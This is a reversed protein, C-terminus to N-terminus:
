ALKALNKDSDEGGAPALACPCSCNCNCLRSSPMFSKYGIKSNSL